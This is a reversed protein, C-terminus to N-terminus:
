RSSARLCCRTAAFSSRLRERAFFDTNAGGKTTKVEIFRPSCDDRPRALVADGNERAHQQPATSCRKLSTTSARASNTRCLRPM